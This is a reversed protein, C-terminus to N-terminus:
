TPERAWRRVRLAAAGLGILLGLLAGAAASTLPRPSVARDLPYAPTVTRPGAGALGDLEGQLATQRARLNAIDGDVATVVPELSASPATRLANTVLETRKDGAATLDTAIQQLQSNIENRRDGDDASAVALYSDLVRRDVDVADDRSGATVQVRIVESDDLVAASVRKRLRDTPIGLHEAVPDLVAHSRLLVLQTSLGRDTRLFGTPQEQALPYVLEARAAYHPHQAMAVVFGGIGGAGLCAILLLVLTQRRGASLPATPSTSAPPLPPTATTLM